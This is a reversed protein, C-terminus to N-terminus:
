FGRTLSLRAVRATGATIHRVPLESRPTSQDWHSSFVFEGDRWERGLLNDVECRVRWRAWDIAATLDVVTAPDSFFGGPLPRPGLVWGRVGATLTADAVRRPLPMREAYAGASVLLRPAYPIREGTNPYRGDSWTVDLQGRVHPIPHITVGGDAGLRRTEGTTLYRGAVHDFVIEDSVRSAFGIARLAVWTNPSATLGAEASDVLAIPARPSNTAGQLNPSRYGRGASVFGSVPSQEFLVVSLKPALASARSSSSPRTIVFQASRLGPEVRLWPSAVVPMTAWIAASSQIGRRTTRDDGATTETQDIADGRLDLGARLSFLSAPRWGIQGRVGGANAGHTQTTRDGNDADTYWGTFNQDLRLDRWGAWGLTEWSLQGQGGSLQASSLLRQSRGGGADPYADYFDVVGASLDDLRLVGPSEFRGDYALLWARARLGAPRGEVGIAGRLQRWSRSMGVGEGLDVDAVAFTGSRGRPPRWSVTLEGSRDTGAGLRVQGGRRSLGLQFSAGGAVAFDGVDPRWTGPRLAVSHVLSPPILHLDLYGHAHINSVENLPVGEVDVALDGGHVADFGRLFYQVAKGRGGHVSLHLGPMARLVDEVSRAPLADLADRDLRRASASRRTRAAEIVIAADEDDDGVSSALAVSLMGFSLMGFAALM